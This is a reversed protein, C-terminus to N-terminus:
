GSTTVAEGYDYIEIADPHIFRAAARAESRARVRDGLGTQLSSCQVKVAVMRHLSQDFARWIVSMGGRALPDLLLYRRALIDGPEHRTVSSWNQRSSRISEPRAPCYCGPRSPPWRRSLSASP